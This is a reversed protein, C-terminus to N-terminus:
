DKGKGDDKQKKGKGNGREDAGTADADASPTPVVTVPISDPSNSAGDPSVSTMTAPGAPTDDSGADDGGLVIALVILVLLTAALVAYPLKSRSGAAPPLFFGPDTDTSRPPVAPAVLTPPSIASGSLAGSTLLAAAERAVEEASGPRDEPAKALMRMVLDRVPTPLERPLAPPEERVQALAVTVPTDGDFPRRGTLCEYAVIGLSYIDSAPTVSGGSAQEPSIYYATGMISGTLTLPVSNMARSIGFDTIKVRGDPTLLLNGPKVDRHIVGGDHAVQLAQASQSVIDLTQEPSLTGERSITTSLPEGPVYELVLFPAAKMDATGDDYDYVAAIGGHSLGAAHRAEARFRERFTPDEALERRLIKVAVQRGLVQDTAAWVEGMGGAALQETLQYRGGLLSPSDRPPPIAARGSLDNSM